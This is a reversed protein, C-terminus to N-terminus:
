VLADLREFEPDPRKLLLLLRQLLPVLLERGLNPIRQFSFLLRRARGSGRGSFTGNKRCLDSKERTREEAGGGNRQGPRLPHPINEDGDGVPPRNGMIRNGRSDSFGGHSGEKGRPVAMPNIAEPEEVTESFFPKHFSSRHSPERERKRTGTTNACGAYWTSRM